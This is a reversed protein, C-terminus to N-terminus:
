LNSHLVSFCLKGIVLWGIKSRSFWKPRIHVDEINSRRTADLTCLYDIQLYYTNLVVKLNAVLGDSCSIQHVIKGILFTSLVALEALHTKM